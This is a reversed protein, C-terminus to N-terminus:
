TVTKVAIARIVTNHSSTFPQSYVSSSADPLYGGDRYHITVGPLNHSLTITQADTYIGSPISFTPPPLFLLANDNSEAPTPEGFLVFDAAGDTRRGYSTNLAVEGYTVADLVVIEENINAALTLTEGSSKLKFNTHLAGEEPDKDAFFLAYGGPSLVFETDIRWKQLDEPNDSLYLGTLTVSEDGTNYLEFWDENKGSDDTLLTGRPAIENIVLDDVDPPPCVSAWNKSFSFLLLSSLFLILTQKPTTNM